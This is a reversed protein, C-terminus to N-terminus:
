LGHDPHPMRRRSMGPAIPCAINADPLPEAQEGSTDIARFVGSAPYREILSTMADHFALKEAVIVWDIVSGGRQCAGMCHWLNKSPTVVLSPGRDDHFPCRGVLNSGHSQLEVGKARVLEEIRV